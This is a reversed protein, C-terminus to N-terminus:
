ELKKSRERFAEGAQEAITSRPAGHLNTSISESTSWCSQGTKPDVFLVAVAVAAAIMGEPAQRLIDDALDAACQPDSVSRAHYHQKLEKM